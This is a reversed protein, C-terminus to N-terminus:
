AVWGVKRALADAVSKEATTLDTDHSCVWDATHPWDRGNARDAEVRECCNEFEPPEYVPGGFAHGRTGDPRRVYATIDGNENAIGLVTDDGVEYRELYHGTAPFYRM